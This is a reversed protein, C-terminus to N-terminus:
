RIPNRPPVIPADLGQRAWELVRENDALQQKQRQITRCVERAAHQLARQMGEIERIPGLAVGVFHGYGAQTGQTQKRGMGAM